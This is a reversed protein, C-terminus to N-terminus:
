PVREGDLFRGSLTLLPRCAGGGEASTFDASAGGV